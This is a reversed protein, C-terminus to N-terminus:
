WLWDLNWHYRSYWSRGWAVGVDRWASIRQRELAVTDDWVNVTFGWNRKDVELVRARVREVLARVEDMCEADPDIQSLLRAVNEAGAYNQNAAWYAEAQNLLVRCQYNAFQRYIPVAVNMALDFCEKSVEPVSSLKFLAEEFQRRGALSRAESIIFDCRSNYYEIIKRKGTEVFNKIQPARVNINNIASIFAKNENTGVGKFEMNTSSFVNQEIMDVIFFTFSLNYAIKPPATPTINKSLVDVKATIVFRPNVEAGGLGNITAIQMLRNQLNSRAIEPMNEIQEPVIANLSIRALDDARGEINQAGAIIPMILFYLVIAKKFYKMKPHKKIKIGENLLIM